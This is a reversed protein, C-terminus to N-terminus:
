AAQGLVLEFPQQDDRQDRKEHHEEHDRDSQQECRGEIRRLDSLNGQDGVQRKVIIM